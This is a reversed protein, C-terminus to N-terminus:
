HGHNARTATHRSAATGYRHRARTRCAARARRPRHTCAKLAGALLQARTPRAAPPPPPLNAGGPYSATPPSSLGPAEEIPTQCGNARCGTTSAEAPFGGDVRADYVDQLTDADQPVLSAYTRFFIDTGAASIGVALAGLFLEPSGATGGDSILYVQGGRYEYVNYFGTNSPDEGAAPTLAMGSSFVVTEGDSSVAPHTDVGVQFRSFSSTPIVAPVTSSNGDHNYGGSGISVRTLQEDRADYRFVQQATSTDDATLDAVSTFVLTGGDPTINMPAEANAAWQFADGEALTAIFSTRSQPEACHAEAAPCARTWLYLNEAGEVPEHGEPGKGPLAGRSVFYVHTGDESIAAVGQVNTAAAGAGVRVLRHGAPNEFDYEYLSRGAAGPLLEQSTSFFVKTGDSSAGEFNADAPASTNCQACDESTPESIAVTHTGDIRAFIEHVPPGYGPPSEGGGPCAPNVTFFVTSGDASIANHTNFGEPGGLGVGCQGILHGANDVGVLAPRDSGIGTHGVGVYEYLSANSGLEGLNAVTSDGAWLNTLVGPPLGSRERHKISFVVHSLDASTGALALSNPGAGYGTPTAPVASQPLMPGVRALEGTTSRIYLESRYISDSLRHLSMLTRGTEDVALAGVQAVPVVVYEEAPPDVATTAWGSSTRDFFYDDGATSLTGGPASAFVGLSTGTLLPADGSALETSYGTPNVPFGQKYPPSVM